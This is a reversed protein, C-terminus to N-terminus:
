LAASSPNISSTIRGSCVRLRTASLRRISRFLRCSLGRRLCPFMGSHALLARTQGPLSAPQALPCCRKPPEGQSPPPLGPAPPPAPQALPVLRTVRSRTAIMPRDPRTLHLM